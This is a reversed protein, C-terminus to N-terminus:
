SVKSGTIHSELASEELRYKDKMSSTSDWKSLVISM